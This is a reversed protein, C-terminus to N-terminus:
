GGSLKKYIEEKSLGQVAVLKNRSKDGQVITVSSQSVHFAKSLTKILHENAKGEVPRSTVSVKISNDSQVTIATVKAGPKLIIQIKAAKEV